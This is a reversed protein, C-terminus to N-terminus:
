MYHWHKLFVDCDCTKGRLWIQYYADFRKIRAPVPLVPLLGYRAIVQALSNPSSICQNRYVQGNVDMCIECRETRYQDDTESERVLRWGTVVPTTYSPRFLRKITEGGWLKVPKLGVRRANEPFARLRELIHKYLADSSALANDQRLRDFDIGGSAPAAASVAKGCKSCFRADAPLTTGCHTCFM